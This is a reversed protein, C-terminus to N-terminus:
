SRRIRRRRREQQAINEKFLLDVEKEERGGGWNGNEHEAPAAWQSQWRLIERGTSHTTLGPAALAAPGARAKGFSIQGTKNEDSRNNQRRAGVEREKKELKAPQFAILILRVLKSRRKLNEPKASSALSWDSGVGAKWDNWKFLVCDVFLLRSALKKGGGVPRRMLSRNRGSSGEKPGPTKESRRRKKGLRSNIGFGGAKREQEREKEGIEDIQFLGFLATAMSTM